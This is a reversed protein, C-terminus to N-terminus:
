VKSTIYDLIEQVESIIISKELELKEGTWRYMSWLVGDTLCGYGIDHTQLYTTIQEQHNGHLGAKAEIIFFERGKHQLLFDPRQGDNNTKNAVYSYELQSLDELENLLRAVIKHTRTAENSEPDFRALILKLKDKFDQSLVIHSM